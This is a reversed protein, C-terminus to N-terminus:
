CRGYRGPDAAHFGLVVVAHRRPGRLMAQLTEPRIFPTDGYLVIV